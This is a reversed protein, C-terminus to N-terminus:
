QVSMILNFESIEGESDSEITVKIRRGSLGCKIRQIRQEPTIHFKRSDRESEIIVDATMNAKITFSEVKKLEDGLDFDSLPSSWIKHTQEGFITGSHTLEGVRSINDNNFCMVLKSKYPNNLALLQKIDVGRMIEVSKTNVDYVFLANNIFGSDSGECGMELGDQFKVRCALYYKSQFCVASCNTNVDIMNFCDLDIKKVNNGNFSYFGDTTLFYVNDGDSAISGPEIYSTSQFLHSISFNGSTSYSSVRTIGFDRFIYLYDNFSIVKNLNGREDSFDLHETINDNWELINQNDSYVLSRRANATLAYVKEDHNCCSMLKPSDQLYTNYGSGYVYVDGDKAAFIMYDKGDIRYSMGVPVSTYNSQVTLSFPRTWFLNEYVLQADENFYFLYYKIEDAGKDYWAFSWMRLIEDGTLNVKFESDLDSVSKPMQLDRVGYGTTLRGAKLSFNYSLVGNNFPVDEENSMVNQRKDFINFKFTKIKKKSPKLKNEYFM